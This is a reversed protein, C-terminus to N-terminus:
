WAGYLKLGLIVTLILSIVLSTTASKRAATKEVGIHLDLLLFRIGACFHHLYGWIIALLVLKVLPNGAVEAISAYSAESGVSMAFLPLIVLPLCLFLIVGSARHLISVKGPTPMHRLYILLQPVGVNKYTPRPKTISDSM